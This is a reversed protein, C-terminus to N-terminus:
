HADGMEVGSALELSAKLFYAGEVVIERDALPGQVLVRGDGVPVVTVAVSRYRGEGEVVFVYDADGIRVAAGEPLDMGSVVDSTAVDVVAFSGPRIGDPVRELAFRMEVSRNAPDVYNGSRVLRARVATPVANFRVDVTDGVVLTAATHEPVFATVWLDDTAGMEVLPMGPLVAQGPRAAVSFVTGATPAVLTVDGAPSPHLHEVMETARVVEARAVEFAARRREVEELSVAGADYLAESRELANSRFVLEAEAGALASQADSLEHAHITVLAQGARVRDGAVVLVSAVRGEVISGVSSRATDPSQVSGPVRETQRIPRVDAPATVLGASQVQAPTLAVVEPDPADAGAAEPEDAGCAALWAVALLLVIPRGAGSLSFPPWTRSPGTRPRVSPEIM